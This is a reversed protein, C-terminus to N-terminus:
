PAYVIECGNGSFSYDTNVFTGNQSCLTFLYPVIYVTNASADKLRRFFFNSPYPLFVTELTYPSQVAGSSNVAIINSDDNNITGVGQADSISASNTASSLNVYLSEDSEVITEQITIVSITKSAQGATFSLTGSTATYDSGATATNNATTYSVNHSFSTLGAKTVTFSLTGGETVSVDNVAFSPTSDNNIITGVGQSDSLVAGNTPASLNVYLTENAEYTSEQTTVVTITKSTEAATFTLTGSKATYDSGAAATNNATAYTM